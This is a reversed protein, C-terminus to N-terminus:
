KGKFVARRKEIFACVGEEYDKSEYCKEIAEKWGEDKNATMKVARVSLPAMFSLNKTYSDVATKLDSDPVVYSM